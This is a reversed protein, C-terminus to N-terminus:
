KRTRRKLLVKINRIKYLPPCFLEMCDKSKNIKRHWSKILLKYKNRIQQNSGRNSKMFKM